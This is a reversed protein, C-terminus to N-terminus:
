ESEAPACAAAIIGLAALLGIGGAAYQAERPISRTVNYTLSEIQKQVPELGPINFQASANGLFALPIALAAPITLGLVTPLCRESVSSGGAPAAPKDGSKVTESTGDTYTIVLNGDADTTVSKIGRGDKGDKGDKGNAGDTGDHGPAGDSGDRGPTGQDGKSGALTGLIESTGDTYTVVVEGKDNTTVSKIGRGDKGDVGDKGDAGDKGDTGDQGDKGDAGVVKGVNQEGGDTFTVILEGKDNIRVSEIGRGDKSPEGKDGKPGSVKGANETTGDTYTIILEGKDNTAVSEIGRGDKGDQGDKGDAGVVKGADETTGDTYTIILHGNDDITVSKIGRADDAPAPDESPDCDKLEDDTREVAALNFGVKVPDHDSSRYPNDAEFVDGGTYNRRSYEMAIPEDSNINWTQAAQADVHENALIHDLSGLRGSFQYSAVDQWDEQANLEEVPITYGANRFVSIADEKSYANLDGMVFTAKEQWQPQKSLGDLVAQAHANRVNPNNGQGDGTDADGNAVSGKSKFHNTVVVFSDPGEPACKDAVPKFEAALPTRATGKFREDELLTAEGVPEVRDKKYIIATRIVDTDASANAPAKVYDWVESGARSNLEGVLYQVADDYNGGVTNAANEIESLGIVDADLGELATLIKGKQDNFASESWAGRFTGSDSGVGNGFRDKYAKAGNDEGLNIFFNLVNFAAVTYDGAVQPAEPRAPDWTIPLDATASDGTIMTTPQFRWQNHGYGLIVGSDAFEVQNTTRITKVDSGNQMIYPLKTSAGDRTFDRTSGDDLIVYKAANSEELAHMEASGPAFKDTPQRLAETGPALGLEGYRNLGYNDTVTHVGPKLLMSELKERAEDGEPLAELSLPTVAPLADTLVSGQTLAIQTQGYYEDVSGTVEVSEGISPYFGTGGTYVFVAESAETPATAGTGPTQITFGNLSKEGQWVATVVGRTTVNQGKLPSEAGTGQIEPITVAAGPETPTPDPEPVTAGGGAKPTPASATFDASNDDTDTGEADRQASTSNSLAKTPSGESLSAAGYGVLDVEAGSADYLKVSGKSGSMSLKGEHDPTPLPEGAGGGGEQILFYGGAPISGSLDHKGGSNGSSSFYEVSWGTVDIATDTPNYLEIFDHTFPANKNGGGGYVESIVANSGDAAASAQPAVICTSVLAAIALSGIRTLRM